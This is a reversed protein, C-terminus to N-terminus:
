DTPRDTQRDAPKDAQRDKRKSTKRMRQRESERILLQSQLASVLGVERRSGSFGIWNNSLTLM